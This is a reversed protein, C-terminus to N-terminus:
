YPASSQPVKLQFPRGHRDGEGNSELVGGRYCDETSEDILCRGNTRPEFHYFDKQRVLDRSLIKRHLM